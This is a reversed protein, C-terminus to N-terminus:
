GGGAKDFESARHVENFHFLFHYLLAYCYIVTFLHLIISGWFSGGPLLCPLTHDHTSGDSTATPWTLGTPSPQTISAEYFTQTKASLQAPHELHAFTNLNTTTLASTLLRSWSLPLLGCYCQVPCATQTHPPPSPWLPPMTLRTFATKLQKSLHLPRPLLRFHVLTLSSDVKRTSFACATGPQLSEWCPSSALSTQTFRARRQL